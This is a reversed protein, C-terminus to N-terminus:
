SQVTEGRRRLCRYFSQPYFSIFVETELVPSIRDWLRTFNWSNCSSKLIVQERLKFYHYGGSAPEFWCCGGYDCKRPLWAQIPHFERWELHHKRLLRVQLALSRPVSARGSPPSNRGKKSGEKLSIWKGAEPQGSIIKHNPCHKRNNPVTPLSVMLRLWVLLMINETSRSIARHSRTTELVLLTLQNPLHIFQPIHSYNIARRLSFFVQEHVQSIQSVASKPYLQIVPSVHSSTERPKKDRNRNM